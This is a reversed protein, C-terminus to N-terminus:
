QRKRENFKANKLEVILSEYDAWDTTELIEEYTRQFYFLYLFIDKAKTPVEGHPADYREDRTTKTIINFWRITYYRSFFSPLYFDIPIEAYEAYNDIHKCFEGINILYNHKGIFRLYLHPYKEYIYRHKVLKEYSIPPIKDLMKLLLAYFSEGIKFTTPKEGLYKCVEQGKYINNQYKSTMIWKKNLQFLMEMTNTM